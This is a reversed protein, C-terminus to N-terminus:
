NKMMQRASNFLYFHRVWGDSSLYGTTFNNENEVVPNNFSTKVYFGGTLYDDVIGCVEEIPITLVIKNNLRYFDHTLQLTELDREILEQGVETTEIFSNFNCSNLYEQIAVKKTESNSEPRTYEMSVAFNDMRSTDSQNRCVFELGYETYGYPIMQNNIIISDPINSLELEFKLSDNEILKWSSIIGTLPDQPISESLPEMGYRILSDPSEYCKVVETREENSANDSINGNCSIFTISLLGILILQTKPM